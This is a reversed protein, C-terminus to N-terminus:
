KVKKREARLSELEDKRSEIGNLALGIVTGSLTDRLLYAVERFMDKDEEKLCLTIFSRKYKRKLNKNENEM